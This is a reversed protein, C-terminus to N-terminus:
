PVELHVPVSPLLPSPQTCCFPPIPQHSCGTRFPAGHMCRPWTASERFYVPAPTPSHYARRGTETLEDGAWQYHCEPCVTLRLCRSM